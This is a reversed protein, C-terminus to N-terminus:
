MLDHRELLTSKIYFMEKTCFLLVKRGPIERSFRFSMWLWPEGDAILLLPLAATGLFFSFLLYSPVRFVLWGVRTWQKDKRSTESGTETTALMLFSQSVCVCEYLKLLVITSISKIWKHQAYM